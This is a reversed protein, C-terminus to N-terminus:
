GRRRWTMWHERGALVPLSEAAAIPEDQICEFHATLLADLEDRRIAFPPGRRNSAQLANDILFLGALLSDPKSLAAVREAWAPWLAPVLAPLFTREYIWDFRPAEFEFFDAQRLLRDAHSGLQARARAIAAPSFDIALVRLGAQDLVRAEWASGCGPILVSAGAAVRGTAMFRTFATPPGGADWPTVNAQFREDWFEPRTPDRTRFEAM